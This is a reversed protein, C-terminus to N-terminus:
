AAGEGGGRGEGGRGGGGPRLLTHGLEHRAEAVQRVATLALVRGAGRASRLGERASPARATRGAAAARPTARGESKCCAQVQCNWM